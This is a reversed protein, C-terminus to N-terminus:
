NFSSIMWLQSCAVNDDDLIKVLIKDTLISQCYRVTKVFKCFLDSHNYSALEAQDDENERTVTVIGVPLDLFNYLFSYSGAVEIDSLSFFNTLIIRKNVHNIM